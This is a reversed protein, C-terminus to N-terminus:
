AKPTLVADPAFGALAKYAFSLIGVCLAGLLISFPYDLVALHLWSDAFQEKTMAAPTLKLAAFWLGDLAGFVTYALMTLVLWVGIMRWVNGRSLTWALAFDVRREMVAIPFVLCFRALLFFVVAMVIWLFLVMAPEGKVHFETPLGLASLVIFTLLLTILYAAPLIAFLAEVKGFRINLWTGPARDGFLIVRHLSVAVVAWAAITLFGSGAWGAHDHALDQALDQAFRQAFRQALTGLLVPCWSLRLITWRELWLFALVAGATGSVPLKRAAQRNKSRARYRARVASMDAEPM